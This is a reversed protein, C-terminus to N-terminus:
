ALSYSRWAVVPAARVLFLHQPMIDVVDGNLLVVRRSGDRNIEIV